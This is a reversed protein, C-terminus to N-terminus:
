AAGTESPLKSGPMKFPADSAQAAKLVGIAGTVDEVADEDFAVQPMEPQNAEAEALLAAITPDLDKDDIM